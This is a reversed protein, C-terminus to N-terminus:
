KEEEQFKDRDSSCFMCHFDEPLPDPSMYVFGCETCEYLRLKKEDEM